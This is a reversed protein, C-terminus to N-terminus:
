LGVTIEFGTHQSYARELINKVLERNRIPVIVSDHVPLAPIGLEMLSLLVSTIINSEELMLKNALGSYIYKGLVPHVKTLSEIIVKPHLGRSKLEDYLIPKPVARGKNAKAQRGKDRNIAATFSKYSSANVAILVISKAIFRSCGSLEMIREYFDAPCQKGDWAYIIHPHMASYDLEVVEESNILLKVRETEPLEQYSLGGKQFWRGVGGGNFVRTLGVSGLCCEGYTLKSRDISIKNWYERNLKFAENYVGDLRKILTQSEPMSAMKHSITFLQERDFIPRKDIVLLPLSKIDIEIEKLLGFESLHEGRTVTSALGSKFARNWCGKQSKVAYGRQEAIDVAELM